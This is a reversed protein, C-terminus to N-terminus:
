EKTNNFYLTYICANESPMSYFNKRIGLNIFGLKEYLHRAPANSERVELTILSCDTVKLSDILTNIISHGIGCNRCDNKVAINSIYFEDLILQGSVYGCVIGQNEAVIFLAKPNLIEQEIQAKSWPRSFNSKEIDAIMAADSTVAIRLIVNNRQMM